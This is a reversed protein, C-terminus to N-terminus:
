RFDFAEVNYSQSDGSTLDVKITLRESGSIEVSGIASPVVAIKVQARFGCVEMTAYHEGLGWPNEPSQDDECSVCFDSGAISVWGRDSRIEEGSKLYM